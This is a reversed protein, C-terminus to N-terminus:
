KIGSNKQFVGRVGLRGPDRAIKDTFVRVDDLIPRMDKTLENVNEAAENLNQYLYRDSMLRNLSGEPNNLAETFTGM